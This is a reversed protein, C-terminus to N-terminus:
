KSSEFDYGCSVCFKNLVDNPSGCQSCFKQTKNNKFISTKNILLEEVQEQNDMIDEEITLIEEKLKPLKMEFADPISLNQKIVEKPIDIKEVNDIKPIELQQELSPMEKISPEENSISFNPITNIPDPALLNVQGESVPDKAMLDPKLKNEEETKNYFSSDFGLFIIFIPTLIVLGLNYLTSKNFKSGLLFLVYLYVIGNIFPILSLIPSVGVIKFLVWMNYFPIIAAWAPKNCKEFVKMLGIIFIIMFLIFIIILGCIIGKILEIDFDVM